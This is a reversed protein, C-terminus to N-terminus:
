AFAQLSGVLELQSSSRSPSSAVLVGALYGDTNLMQLLSTCSVLIHQSCLQQACHWQQGKQAHIRDVHHNGIRLDAYKGCRLVDCWLNAPARYLTRITVTGFFFNAVLAAAVNVNYKTFWGYALLALPYTAAGIWANEKMRDEPIFILRGREDYRGAAKAERHMIRDVWRGGFVSSLFYGAANPIYLCGVIISNYNYPAASFEEQVSINLVYLSGFTVSAYMVLLAVAPFQLYLIIRLPDLFARRAMILYKKSKIKVSQTTTTRALGPRIDTKEDGEAEQEAEAALAKRERLTEPLAFVIFVWLVGAFIALFWQASRWGLTQAFVGGLIPSILPGCLPGLYFMGMAQGREKVQWVDAITGAGVAQVSAAAGGSLLRMVIFMAMSTSVAALINFVLFLFFSVVYITRRGLTESFSSWWLPFISMALMYMAVSLNGVTATSNFEAIIDVLAPLVISSGMPAAAGALAVIATITWKKKRSLDQSNTVEDFLCFRALLGRRDSKPVKIADRRVSGTSSQARSRAAPRSRSRHPPLQHDHADSATRQTDESSRTSTSDNRGRRGLKLVDESNAPAAGVELDAEKTIATFTRNPDHEWSTQKEIQELKEKEPDSKSTDSDQDQSM